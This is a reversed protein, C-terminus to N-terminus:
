NDGYIIIINEGEDVYLIGLYIDLNEEYNM